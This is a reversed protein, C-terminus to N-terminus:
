SNHIRIYELRALDKQSKFINDLQKTIMLTILQLISSLLNLPEGEKRTKPNLVKRIIGSVYYSVRINIFTTSVLKFGNTEMIESYYEIPRGYNLENGKIKSEIREFLYVNNASVRCIEKMLKKLMNEDTNHQLVTSTFVLNFSKNEFPLETGNTKIVEIEPPVKNLALQVMRNSIDVGVLKKPKHNHIEVLNGGPGCGVELVLKGGFDLQNLLELFKATKYKYYPEDDGALLSKYNKRSEIRRGVETWYEEPNYDKKKM